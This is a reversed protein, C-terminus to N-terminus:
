EWMAMCMNNHPQEAPHPYYKVRLHGIHHENENFMTAERSSLRETSYVRPSILAHIYKLHVIWM